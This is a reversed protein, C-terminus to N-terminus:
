AADDIVRMESDCWFRASPLGKLELRDAREYQRVFEAPAPGLTSLPRRGLMRDLAVMAYLSHFLAEVAEEKSRGEGGLDVELCQAIWFGEEHTFLIRLSPLEAPAQELSPIESRLSLKLLTYFERQEDIQELPIIGGNAMLRDLRERVDVPVEAVPRGPFRGANIAARGVRSAECLLKGILEHRNAATARADLNLCAGHWIADAEKWCLLRVDVTLSAGTLGSNLNM